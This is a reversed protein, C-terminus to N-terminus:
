GAWILRCFGFAKSSKRTEGSTIVLLHQAFVSQECRSLVKIVYVWELVADKGITGIFSNSKNKNGQHTKQTLYFLKILSKKEQSLSHFVLLM